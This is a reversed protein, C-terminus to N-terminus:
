KVFRLQDYNFILPPGIKVGEVNKRTFIYLNGQFIPVTMSEGPWMAQVEKFIRGRVEPNLSHEEQAFLDDWKKSSFYIGEGASAQTQAFAPVIALCAALAGIACALVSSRAARRLGAALESRGM